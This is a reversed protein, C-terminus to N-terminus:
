PTATIVADPSERHDGAEAPEQRPRRRLDGGGVDRQHQVPQGVQEGGGRDPEADALDGAAGRLASAAGPSTASSRSPKWNTALVGSTRPSTIPIMPANVATITTPEAVSYAALRPPPLAAYPHQEDGHEDAQRDAHAGRRPQRPPQRVVAKPVAMTAAPHASTSTASAGCRVTAIPATPSTPPKAPIAKRVPRVIM